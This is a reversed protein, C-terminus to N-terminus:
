VVIKQLENAGSEEWPYLEESQRVLAEHQPSRPKITVKFDEPRSIVSPQFRVAPEIEVGNEDLGKSIEFAALTQAITIWVASIALYRGPCIRRGYGFIHDTPDAAPNPGMFRSPNFASPDPYVAPDHTFWWVNPLIIAGKPIRYGNVIDEADTAHPVSLPTVPHWRWTEKVIANIYPLNDRDSFTPLRDSGVVRDIEERAKRQVDPFISMALFFSALATPSTDAGGGYIALASWKLSDHDEKTLTDGREALFDQVFTKEQIGHAMRKEAFKLPKFDLVHKLAPFVDVPWAGPTIAASFQAMSTDALEVLPDPKHPEVTYGYTAKLIIAAAETRLHQLFLDPEQLIRFLFRHAEMEQLGLYHGAASQTGVFTHTQKRSLRHKKNYQLLPTTETWGIMDAFVFNPRGSYILSKKELLELALEYVDKHKLWHEWEREGKAPLDLINGVIPLGKPGPPLNGPKKTFILLTIRVVVLIATAFLIGSALLGFIAM